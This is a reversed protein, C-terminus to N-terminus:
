DQDPHRKDDDENILTPPENQDEADDIPALQPPQISVIVEDPDSVLEVGEPLKISSITINDGINLAEINVSLSDPIETPLCRVNVTRTQQSLVGGDIVGQANGELHIPVEAELPQNMNVQLFDLHVLSGKIPDRQVETMMVSYYDNGVMLKIIGRAKGTHMLKLVDSELLHISASEDGFKQGIVNGPVRGEKRLTKVTSKRDDTRREAILSINKAM